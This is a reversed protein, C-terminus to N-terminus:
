GGAMAGVILLPEEGGAVRAPLPVDHSEHSWDRECAFFRIFARRKHTGQDRLTGRLMPYQTELTDLVRRLTDVAMADRLINVYCDQQPLGHVLPEWENGGSRSRYVRLKGEPPFHHADSTIPVVHITEPEHPHVEIPFGSDSALNGSVEHWRDGGDDSRMVDWHQQMYLRQPNSPHM